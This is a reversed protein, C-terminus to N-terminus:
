HAQKALENQKIQAYINIM